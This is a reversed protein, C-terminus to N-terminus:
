WARQRRMPLRWASTTAWNHAQLAALARQVHAQMFGDVGAFRCLEANEGLIQFLAWSTAKLAAERDLEIAAALRAYEAAGGQYQNWDAAPMSIAPHTMDFRSGTLRSFVAAEFLIVPRGSGDSLFGSGGSGVTMVARFTAADCDFSAAIDALDSPALPTAPGAFPLM